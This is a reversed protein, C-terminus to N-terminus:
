SWENLSVGAKAHCINTLEDSCAGRSAGVHKALQAWGLTACESRVLTLGM